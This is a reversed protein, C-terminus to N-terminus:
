GNTRAFSLGDRLARACSLAEGPTKGRAVLHGMKRAKRPESKGYLVLDVFGPQKSLASMDLGKLAEGDFYLDGMINAMAFSDTSIPEPEALPLDLLVRALLDYQSLNFASVSLHGSNHPRPALENILVGSQGKSKDKDIFFEVTLLGEIDLSQAVGLAVERVVALTEAPLSAPCVTTDLISDKHVNQFIPMLVHEHKSRAVICSVECELDILREVVMVDGKALRRAIADQNQSLASQDTLRIQGKGDYGGRITKLMCPFGFDQIQLVFDAGSIPAFDALPFGKDKLYQKEILRDQAVSLALLGPKLKAATLSQLPGLPLHEFEYTIVDCANDFKKLQELDDFPYVFSRATHRHSPACKDSDYVITHAGLRALSQSLLFGLQGGGLIGVTKM